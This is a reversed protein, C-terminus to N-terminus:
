VYSARLSHVNEAVGMNVFGDPNSDPDYPNGLIKKFKGALGGHSAIEAGRHSLPTEILM